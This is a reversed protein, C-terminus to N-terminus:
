QASEDGDSRVAKRAAALDYGMMSSMGEQWRKEFEEGGAQAPPVDQGGPRVARRGASLVLAAAGEAAIVALLGAILFEM